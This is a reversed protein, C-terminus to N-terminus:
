SKNIIPKQLIITCFYLFVSKIVVVVLAVLDQAKVAQGVGEVQIGGRGVAIKAHDASADVLLQLGFAVGAPEGQDIWLVNGDFLRVVAM